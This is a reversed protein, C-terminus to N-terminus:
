TRYSLWTAYRDAAPLLEQQAAVLEERVGPYSLDPTKVGEGLYAAILSEVLYAQRDNM